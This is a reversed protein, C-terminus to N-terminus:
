ELILEVIGDKTAVLVEDTENCHVIHSPQNLGEWRYEPERSPADVNLAM